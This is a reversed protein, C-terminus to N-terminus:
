QSLSLAAPTRVRRTRDLRENAKVMAEIVSRAATAIDSVLRARM